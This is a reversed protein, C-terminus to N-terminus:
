AREKEAAICGHRIVFALARAVGSGSRAALLGVAKGGVGVGGRFRRGVDRLLGRAWSGAPTSIARAPILRTMM